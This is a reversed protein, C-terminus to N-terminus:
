LLPAVTSSDNSIATVPSAALAVGVKAVLVSFTSTRMDGTEYGGNAEVLNIIKECLVALYNDLNPYELTSFHDQAIINGRLDVVAYTTVAVGIDVGVVRSKVNTLEM